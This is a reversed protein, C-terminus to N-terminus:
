YELAKSILMQTELGEETYHETTAESGHGLTKAIVSLDIGHRKLLTAATYRATGTTLKVTLRVKDKNIEKQAESLLENTDKIFDKITDKRQKSTLGARLIPFVYGAPDLSKNGHKSIVARMRPSIFVTISQKYRETNETKKREFSLFDGEIDKNRLYAVDAMNCGNSFFQYIWFDLARNVDERPSRYSLILNKESQTFAKKTTRRGSPIVYKRIGFPFVEKPIIKLEIALNFITRLARCYIGVTNISRREITEGAEEREQLMWREYSKLWDSTISGFSIFEGKYKEFSRLSQTYAEATGDRGEVRLNKIAYDFVTKINELRGSGTFLREFETVSLGKKYLEIAKALALIVTYDNKKNLYEAPECFVGTPYRRVIYRNKNGERQKFNVKIKIPYKGANDGTTSM